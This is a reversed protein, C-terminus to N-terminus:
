NSHTVYYIKQSIKWSGGRKVLNFYDTGWLTQDGVILEFDLRINGVNGVYSVTYGLPIEETAVGERHRKQIRKVFDQIPINSKTADDENANIVVSDPYFAKDFWKEEGTKIAKFYYDVTALLAEVEKSDM